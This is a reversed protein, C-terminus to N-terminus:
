IIGASRLHSLEQSSLGLLEGFVQQNHEGLLPAAAEIRGPSRSLKFPVGPYTHRGAERHDLEVFYQRERFHPDEMVQPPTLVPAVPLGAAQGAAFVEYSTHELMWPLFISDWDDRHERRAEMTSFRPDELLEPMGMMDVIGPWMRAGLPLFTVHGDKSRHTGRAYGDSPPVGPVGEQSAARCQGPAAAESYAYPLRRSIQHTHGVLAELISVDIWEGQGSLLSNLAAAMTGAAAVNGVFYNGMYGGYKLPERHPLGERLMAGGMAFLTLETAEYDSYPGDQGFPTISTMVLSPNIEKLEQYGLGLSAMTGPAYSEVLVTSHRILDRLIEQGSPAQIDLTVGKKDTNLHLFLASREPHPTDQPFPGTRRASDGSGPKEVKIVEAGYQSMLKTCYPGAIFEALEIVRLGALAVGTM